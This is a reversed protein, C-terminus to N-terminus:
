GAVKGTTAQQIDYAIPPAKYIMDESINLHNVNKFYYQIHNIKGLGFM